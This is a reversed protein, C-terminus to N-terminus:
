FDDESGKKDRYDENYEEIYKRLEEKQEKTAQVKALFEDVDQGIRYAYGKCINDRPTISLFGYCDAYTYWFSNLWRSYAM